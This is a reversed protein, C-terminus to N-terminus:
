KTILYDVLFKLIFNGLYYSCVNACLSILLSKKLSFKLSVKYIITEIVVAFTEAIILMNKTTILLPIVFWVYPLTLASALIGIYVLYVFKIARKKYVLKTILILIPVEILLTIILALFFKPGYWFM